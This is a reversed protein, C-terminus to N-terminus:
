YDEPLLVTTVSRDSETIIWFKVGKPTTYASLLRGGTELARDNLMKDEPCVDGWDCALHRALSEGVWPTEDQLVEVLHSTAVVRGLNFRPKM